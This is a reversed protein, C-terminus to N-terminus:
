FLQGHLGECEESGLVEEHWPYYRHDRIKRDEYTDWSKYGM